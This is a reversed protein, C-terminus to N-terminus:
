ENSVLQLPIGNSGLAVMLEPPLDFDIQDQDIWTEVNFTLRLGAGQIKAIADQPLSELWNSIETYKATLEETLIEHPEDGEIDSVSREYFVVLGTTGPSRDAVCEWGSSKGNSLNLPGLFDESTVTQGDRRAASLVLNISLIAM